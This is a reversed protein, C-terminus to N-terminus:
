DRSSHQSDWKCRLRLNREAMVVGISSSVVPPTRRTAPVFSSALGTSATNKGFQTPSTTM